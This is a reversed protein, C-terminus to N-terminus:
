PQVQKDVVACTAATVSCEARGLVPTKVRCDLQCITFDSTQNFADVPVVLVAAASQM